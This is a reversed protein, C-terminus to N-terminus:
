VFAISHTHRNGHTHSSAQLKDVNLAIQSADYPEYTMPPDGMENVIGNMERM